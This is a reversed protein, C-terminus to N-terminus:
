RAAPCRSARCRNGAARPSRARAMPSGSPRRRLDARDDSADQLAPVRRLAVADPEHLEPARCIRRRRPQRRLSLSVLRRRHVQRAALRVFAPRAGSSAARAEGAVAGEPRHRVKAARRGRAAQIQPRHAKDAFRARGRRVAHVQGQAGHRAFFQRDAQRGKRRGHRGHRRRCDRRGRRAPDRQGCFWPLDRRRAGGRAGRPVKRRGVALRHFQRPQGDAEADPCQAPAPRQLEDPLLLPRGEGRDEVPPRRGPALRAAACRARVPGDGVRLPHARRGRLGERGRRRLAGRRAAQAPDRRRPRSPRRRRDRRRLGHERPARTGGRTWENCIGLHAIDRPVLWFLPLPCGRREGEFSRSALSSGMTVGHALRRLRQTGEFPQQAPVRRHADIRGDVLDRMIAEDHRLIHRRLHHRRRGRRSLRGPNCRWRRTGAHRRPAIGRRSRGVLQHARRLGRRRRRGVEVIEGGRRDASGPAPRGALRPRM